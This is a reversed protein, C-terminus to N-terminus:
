NNISYWTQLIDLNQQQPYQSSCLIIGARNSFLHRVVLVLCNRGRCDPCKTLSPCRSLLVRLGSRVWQVSQDCPLLWGVPCSILFIPLLECTRHVSPSTLHGFPYDSPSPVFDSPQATVLDFSLDSSPLLCSLHIAAVPCSRLAGFSEVAARWKEVVMVMKRQNWLCFVTCVFNWSKYMYISSEIWQKQGRM